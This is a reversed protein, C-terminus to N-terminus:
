LVAVVTFPLDLNLTKFNYPQTYIATHTTHNIATVDTSCGFM